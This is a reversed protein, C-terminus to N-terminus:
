SLDVTFQSSESGYLDKKVSYYRVTLKNGNDSFYFMAVMGTPAIFGDIGQPDILMQTVTNENDGKDQRYVVHQCPDHGSLVMQVNEHKSAFQEWIDDGDLSPKETQEEKRSKLPGTSAPFADDSDLTTGDRYLYGHTIVIVRHDPYAEVVSDAWQLMEANPGFDLTLFLYDIGCINITRYANSLDGQTMVGTIQQNYIGDDFAMNFGATVVGNTKRDYDHNGRSLIYPVIDNMKYIQSKAYVWEYDYSKQTIDGLGIVYEIKEKEKNNVIWEYLLGFTEPDDESLEQTDGIVAFSYDFGEVPEVEDKTLWLKEVLLNNKGSGLDKCMCSECMSFDYSALLKKDATNVGFTFDAKLEAASRIDSWISLSYLEGRFYNPNGNYLDGGVAYACPTSFSKQVEEPINDLSQMLKGNIYCSATGGTQDLTIALYVPTSSFANVEDFLLNYSERYKDKPRLGIKPNGNETITFSVSTEYTDDNSFLVTETYDSYRDLSRMTSTDLDSEELSFVAEFTLPIKSIKKSQTYVKETSFTVGSNKGACDKCDNQVPKQKMVLIVTDTTISDGYKDTIKCYLSRGNRADTMEVSYTDGNFANTKIFSSMGTDKYYWAYKLGDGKAQLTIKATKGRLVAVSAPQQTIELKNKLSITVTKTTVSNGYKDTIKCYLKRGNRAENMIASYNNSKFTSTKKFSSMGADKYYWAYKLGDGTAQLTIKALKGNLVLVSVPQQTIEFKTKLSIIVKKTTVSNGYKDTIKCYLERGNRVNNMTVSYSNSKFVNTKKFASMGADKYYWAYKLGDGKAKLTVKATKGSFAAASVPQQTIEVNNKM